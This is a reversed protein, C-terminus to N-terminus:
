ENENLVEKIQNAWYSIVVDAGSRFIATLSEYAM